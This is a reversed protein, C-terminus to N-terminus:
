IFHILISITISIYTGSPSLATHLVNFSVHKDFSQENLSIFSTSYINDFTSILLLQPSDRLSLILQQSLSSFSISEPTTSFKLSHVISKSAICYIQLSKDYSISAILSNSVIQISVVYKTHHKLDYRVSTELDEYKPEIVTISGDMTGTLFTM